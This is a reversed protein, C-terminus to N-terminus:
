WTQKCVPLKRKKWSDYKPAKPSIWRKCPTASYWGVSTCDAIGPAPDWDDVHFSGNIQPKGKKSRRKVNGKVEGKLPATQPSEFQNEFRHSFLGDRLPERFYGYKNFENGSISLEGPNGTACSVPAELRYSDAVRPTFSGNGHNDKYLITLFISSPSQSTVSLDQFYGYRKKAQAAPALLVLALLATLAIVLTRMMFLVTPRARAASM